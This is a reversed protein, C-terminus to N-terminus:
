TPDTPDDDGYVGYATLMAQIRAHRRTLIAALDALTGSRLSDLMETVMQRHSEAFERALPLLRHGGAHDVQDCTALAQDARRLQAKLRTEIDPPTIEDDPM